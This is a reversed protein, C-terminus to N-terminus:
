HRSLASGDPADGIPSLPGGAATPVDPALRQRLRHLLPGAVLGSLLASVATASLAVTLVADRPAFRAAVAGVGIAVLVVVGLGGITVGASRM